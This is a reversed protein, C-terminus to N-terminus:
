SLAAALSGAAIRARSGNWSKMVAALAPALDGRADSPSPTMAELAELLAREGVLEAARAAERSAEDAGDLARRKARLPGIVEGEWIRAATIAERGVDASVPRAEALAWARWLLLAVCQGEQDQLDLCTEGVGPRNWAALAFDWLRL